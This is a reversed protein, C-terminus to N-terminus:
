WFCHNCAHFYKTAKNNATTLKCTFRRATFNTSINFTWKPWKETGSNDGKVNFSQEWSQLDFSEHLMTCSKWERWKSRTPSNAFIDHRTEKQEPPNGFDWSTSGWFNGSLNATRCHFTPPGPNLPRTVWPHVTNLFDQILNQRGPSCAFGPVFWITLIGPVRPFGKTRIGLPQRPSTWNPISQHM